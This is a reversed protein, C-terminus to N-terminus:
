LRPYSPPGLPALKPDSQIRKQEAFLEDMVSKIDGKYKALQKKVDEPPAGLEKAKKRLGDLGKRIQELKPRAATASPEDKVTKLVGVFDRMVTISEKVVSEHTPKGDTPKEDGRVEDCGAVLLMVAVAFLVGRITWCKTM